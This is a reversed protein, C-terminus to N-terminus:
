AVLAVVYGASIAALVLAGIVIAATARRSRLGEQGRLGLAIGAGALPFPLGLFVLALAPVALASCVIARRAAVDPDDRARRVVVGFVLVVLAITVAAGVLFAAPDALGSEEDSGEETGVLHDVALAAVGLASVALAITTEQSLRPM